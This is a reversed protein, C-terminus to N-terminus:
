YRISDPKVIKTTRTSRYELIVHHQSFLERICMKGNETM